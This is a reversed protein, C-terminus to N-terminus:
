NFSNFHKSDENCEKEVCINVYLVIESSFISSFLALAAVTRSNSIARQNKFTIIDIIQPGYMVWFLREREEPFNSLWEVDFYFSWTDNNFALKLIIGTGKSFRRAVEYDVTTSLLSNINQQFSDFLLQINLGTYITFGKKPMTGFLRIAAGM